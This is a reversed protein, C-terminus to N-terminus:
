RLRAVAFNRWSAKAYYSRIGVQGNPPDCAQEVYSLEASENTVTDVARFTFTCGSSTLTLHYWRGTHLEHPFYTTALERYGFSMKGVLLMHDDQRLGAYYGRMADVGIAPDRVRLLLGADGFSLDQPATDFRFDSSVAYNGADTAGALLKDGRGDSRNTYVGDALSWDGGYSHWSGADEPVFRPYRRGASIRQVLAAVLVVAVLAVAAISLSRRLM